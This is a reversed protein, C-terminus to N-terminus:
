GPKRWPRARPWRWCPWWPPACPALPLGLSAATAEGLALGDLVRSLGWAAALCPLWVALMLLCSTWGVFGTSGLLFAQM